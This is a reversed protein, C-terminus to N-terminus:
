GNSTTDTDFKALGLGMPPVTVNFFKSPLTRKEFGSGGMGGFPAAPYRTIPLGPSLVADNNAESVTSGAPTSPTKWPTRSTCVVPCTAVPITVTNALSNLPLVINFMVTKWEGTVYFSNGDNAPPSVLLM